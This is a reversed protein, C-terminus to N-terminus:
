LSLKLPFIFHLQVPVERTTWYNLIQRGQYLVCLQDRTQSSEVHRPVVLGSCSLQKAQRSQLRHLLPLWWLSFHADQMQLAAEVRQLQLFGLHLLSRTCGFILLKILFLLFSFFIFSLSLGLLHDAERPEQFERKAWVAYKQYPSASHQKISFFCSMRFSRHMQDDM